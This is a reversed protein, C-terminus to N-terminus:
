ALKGSNLQELYASVEDLDGENMLQRLYDAFEEQAPDLKEMAKKLGTLSFRDAADKLEKWTEPTLQVTEPDPPAARDLNRSSPTDDYEFVVGLLDALSDCVEGLRFPKSLFGHFGSAMHGEREHELVSATIAVVKIKDPGHQAIIQETAENGTMGPMRIDMFILEPADEEILAFAQAASEAVRVQCGISRLVQSLVDRNNQNDDVVLINAAQGPALGKVEGSEQQRDRVIERSAPPLTLTFSFRTGEGLASDLALEGGMLEVQRRSIALGLGTGGQAIGASSQQFPQFIASQDRESIGPGTDIVEFVYPQNPAHHVKLTVTGSETFKVANGLLNILVQRLKGEDGYVPVPQDDFAEVRLDLDREECRLRFMTHIGTIMENLDFDSAQLEMRGAEIKSLDLIDNIMALLHDGSREITEISQRHRSPLQDDRKLIQSYGLIANMPTRIEHSMNALFLSKAKNAEDAAEKAERLREATRKEETLDIVVAQVGTIKGAGDRIPTLIDHLWIPEGDPPTFMIARESTEGTRAIKDHAEIIPDVQEPPFWERSDNWGQGAKLTIGYHKQWFKIGAENVYTLSGDLDRRFVQVPVNEILSKFYAEANKREAVESELQQRAEQEQQLMAERLETSERKRRVVMLGAIGAWGMLALGGLSGPITIMRNAHWPTIVKIFARAPPSENLDRDIGSVFVTFEGSHPATWAFRDGYSPEEWGPADLAPPEPLRGPFFGCRYIRKDPSTRYDVTQFRFEAPQTRHLTTEKTIPVSQSNSWLSLRPSFPKTQNRRVGVLSSSGGIWVQGRDDEVVPGKYTTLGEDDGLQAWVGNRFRFAGNGASVWLVGTRDLLMHYVDGRPLRENLSSQISTFTQTRYDFRTIGNDTGLYLYEDPGDQLCKIRNSLLGPHHSISRQEASSATDKITVEEPRTSEVTYFPGTYQGSSDKQLRFVGLSHVTCWVAGERDEYLYFKSGGGDLLEALEPDTKHLVQTPQASANHVDSRRIRWVGNGNTVWLYDESDIMVDHTEWATELHAEFAAATQFSDQGEHGLEPNYYLAGVDHSHGVVWLGGEPDAAQPRPLGYGTWDPAKDFSPTEIKLQPPRMDVFHNFTLESSNLDVRVLFSSRLVDGYSPGECGAFWLRNDATRVSRHILGKPLGDGEGYAVLDEAYRLLGDSTAMWTRGDPGDVINYFIGQGMTFGHDYYVLSGSSPYYRKVGGGFTGVWIGGHTTPAIAEVTDNLTSLAFDEHRLTTIVGDAIRGLFRPEYRGSDGFWLSGDPMNTFASQYGDGLGDEPTFSTVDDGVIRVFGKSRGGGRTWAAGNADIGLASGHSIWDNQGISEIVGEGVIEFHGAQRRSLGERTRLWISGDPGQEIDFVRGAALGKEGSPHKAIVEQSLPDFQVAGEESGVWLTGDSALLLCFASHDLMGHQRTFHRFEQSDYSVLGARTALWLMGDSAFKLDYIQNNPLGQSTTFREWTGKRFPPINKFLVERREGPGITFPGDPHNYIQNPLHIRIHFSGPRVHNFTFHSTEGGRPRKTVVADWVGSSSFPGPVFEPASADVLQVLVEEIAAGSFDEVRGEVSTAAHLSIRMDSLDGDISQDLLWGEGSSSTARLDFTTSLTGVPDRTAWFFRGNSSTLVNFGRYAGQFSAVRASAIPHGKADNVQGSIVRLPVGGEPKPIQNNELAAAGQLDGHFGLPGRDTVRRDSTLEEFNWYAILGQEHGTLRQFRRDRIETPDLARNWVRVEDITGQFPFKSDDNPEDYVESKAGLYFEKGAGWSAYSRQEAPEEGVLKGDLYFKMGSPGTVWAVHLWHGFEVVRPVSLGAHSQIDLTKSKPAFDTIDFDISHYADDNLSIRITGKEGTYSFLFRENNTDQDWRVWAEITAEALDQVAEPPLSVYSDEGALKLVRDQARASWSLLGIMSVVFLLCKMLAAIAIPNQAYRDM